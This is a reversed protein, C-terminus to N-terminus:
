ANSLIRSCIVVLLDAETAIVVQDLDDKSWCRGFHLVGKVKLYLFNVTM